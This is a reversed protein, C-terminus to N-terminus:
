SEWDNAVLLSLNCIQVVHQVVLVGGIDILLTNSEGDSAHKNDIGLLGNAENEGVRGRGTAVCGFHQAHHIRQLRSVLVLDCGRDIPHGTIIHDYMRADLCLLRLLFIGMELDDLRIQPERRQWLLLCTSSNSYDNALPVHKTCFRITDNIECGIIEKLSKCM